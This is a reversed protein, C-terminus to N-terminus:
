CLISNARVAIHHIKVSVVKFDDKQQKLLYEKLFKFGKLVLTNNVNPTENEGKKICHKSCSCFMELDGLTNDFHHWVFQSKPEHLASDAM